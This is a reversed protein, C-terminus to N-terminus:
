PKLLIPVNRLEGSCVDAVQFTMWVRGSANPLNRRVAIGIAKNL